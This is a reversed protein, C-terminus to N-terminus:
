SINNKSHQSYPKKVFHAVPRLIYIVSKVSLPSGTYPPIFVEFLNNISVTKFDSTIYSRIVHSLINLM